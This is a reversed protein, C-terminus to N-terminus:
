RLMEPVVAPRGPGPPRIRVRARLVPVWLLLAAPYLLYGFRTSPMLLIAVLLGFACVAAATAASRPPRSLLRLGIALGACFLLAGAIFSGGPLTRAILYGPLHSGAPSSVVGYGLPFWLVNEVMASGAFLWEPLATLLPIGAAGACFLTAPRYGRAAALVVLVIVVPWAFLKLTAAAGAALGAAGFRHAAVCALALLCLALVPLDDGGTALTLACIPLAAVAQLARIAPARTVAVRLSGAAIRAAALVAITTVLAFWIRADTWWHVGALARPLGFLSMGPQYPVYGLLREPEPLGAIADTGLYPSGTHLLRAGAQEVVLVEEQAHALQPAHAPGPARRGALVILPLVTVGAFAAATVAARHMPGAHRPRLLQGATLLACAAYGWVAILGWSRHSPLTSAVATVLAFVTSAGYLVLDLALGGAYRDIAHWGRSVRAATIM